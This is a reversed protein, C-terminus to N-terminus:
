AAMAVPPTAFPRLGGDASHAPPPGGHVEVAVEPDAHVSIEPPPPGGGVVPIAELLSDVPSDTTPRPRARRAQPDYAM